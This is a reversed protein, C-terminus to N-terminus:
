SERQLNRVAGLIERKVQQFDVGEGVTQFVGRLRCQRDVLVLYTSHIFLDNASEREEPRKEQASLKLSDNALEFIQSKSGTLFSWRKFDAGFKEAYAKLVPPTDTDPFTTLSVLKPESGPPLADQLDKMERTMTPCPGSCTTFIIDAIWIKGRLDGLTFVRGNQNTLSFDAVQGYVPLKRGGDEQRQAARQLHALLLCLFVIGCLLIAGTWLSRSLKM